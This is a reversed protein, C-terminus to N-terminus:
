LEPLDVGRAELRARLRQLGSTEVQRIRERTVGMRQGIAELTLPPEGELGFRLAIVTRENAPLSDLIERLDAQQRLRALVADTSPGSRDPVIDQLVGGGEGVPTELSLPTAAVEELGELHEVPVELAQAIEALSPRRGLTLTLREKTRQYKAYLAEVHVPLRILRAQNALARVISQRIWWTAYTSFRTGREWRFKRVARLLGLNGEEILDALSLGRNTYRRAIMVVLRLNAEVMRREAEADGAAVRKALEVEEERSLLPLRAIEALYISLAPRGAVAGEDQPELDALALDDPAAEADAPAEDPEPADDPPREPEDAPPVERRERSM